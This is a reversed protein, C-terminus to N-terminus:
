EEFLETIGERRKKERLLDVLVDGHCAEPKCHCGLVKGDLEDLSELLKPQKKIWSRYKDIVQSRTGHMSIMFPNGWKSSRGIYVDYEATKSNVVKTERVM